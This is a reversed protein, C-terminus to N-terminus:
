KKSRPRQLEFVRAYPPDYLILTNGDARYELDRPPAAPCEYEITVVGSAAGKKLRFGGSRTSGDENEFAYRGVGEGVEIMKRSYRKAPGTAGGKGTFEVAWAQVYTGKKVAGGREDEPADAVKQVEIKPATNELPKCHPADVEPAPPAGSPAKSASAGGETPKGGGESSPEGGEAPKGGGDIKSASTGGDSDSLPAREESMPGDGRIDTDEGWGLPDSGGSGIGKNGSGDCPLCEEFGKGDDMCRKTGEARDRCRCFVYANPTCIRESTTGKSEPACAVFLAAGFLAVAM